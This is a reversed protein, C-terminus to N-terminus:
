TCESVFRLLGSLTKVNQFSTKLTVEIEQPDEDMVEALILHVQKLIHESSMQDKLTDVSM